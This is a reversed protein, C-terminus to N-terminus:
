KMVHRPLTLFGQKGCQHMKPLGQAGRPFPQTGSSHLSLACLSDPQTLVWPQSGWSCVTLLLFTSYMELTSSFFSYCPETAVSSLQDKGVELQIVTDCMGM